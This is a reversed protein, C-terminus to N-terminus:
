QEMFYKVELCKTELMMWYVIQIENKGAKNTM